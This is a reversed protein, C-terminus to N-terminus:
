WGTWQCDCHAAAKSRRILSVVQRNCFWGLEVGVKRIACVEMSLLEKGNQKQNVVDRYLGEGV